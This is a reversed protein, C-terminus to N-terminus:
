EEDQKLYPMWKDRVAQAIDVDYDQALLLTFCLVDALEDAFAKRAEDDPLSKRNQGHLVLFDSVLEGLEEQLKMVLWEPTVDVDFVRGYSDVVNRAIVTLDKITKGHNM